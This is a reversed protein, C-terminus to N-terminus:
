SREGKINEFIDESKHARVAIGPLERGLREALPAMAIQETQFHGLDIINVGAERADLASHYRVDGTVLTDCGLEVAKWLFDMGSGPCACVAKVPKGADVMRMSGFPLRRAWLSLPMPDKIIGIKIPGYSKVEQLSLSEVFLDAGGGQASDLNTHLSVVSIGTRILIGIKRCISETLDIRKLPHFILPHHTIIMDAKESQATEIVEHTADLSVLISSIEQLPDGVM